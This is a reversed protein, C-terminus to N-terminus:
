TEDGRRARRKNKTLSRTLLEYIDHNGLYKAVSLPTNAGNTSVNLDANWAVLRKVAQFHGEIVAEMLPTWNDWSRVNVNSGVKQLLEMCPVCGARAAGYFATSGSASTINPDAGAKLLIAIVDAHAHEAALRLATRKKGEMQEDVPIGAKLLRGVINAHGQM